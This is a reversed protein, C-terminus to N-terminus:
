TPVGRAPQKRFTSDTLKQYFDRGEGEDPRIWFGSVCNRGAVRRAWIPEGPTFLSDDARLARTGGVIGRSQLGERRRDYRREAAWPEVEM